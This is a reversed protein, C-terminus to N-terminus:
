PSRCPTVDLSDSRIRRSSRSFRSSRSAFAIRLSAATKKAPSSSGRRRQDDREDVLLSGFTTRDLRDAPDQPLLTHLDGRSGIPGPDTGPGARAVEPVRHQDVCQQRRDPGRLAHIPTPLHDHEQAAQPVIDGVPPHIPQHTEETQIPPHTPLPHPGRDRVAVGRSCRVQQVSVEGGRGRVVPPDRVEGIHTGPGPEHIDREHDVAEGAGDDAPARARRLRCREHRCRQPHPQPSAVTSTVGRGCAQHM